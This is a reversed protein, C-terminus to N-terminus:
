NLKSLQLIKQEELLMRELNSLINRLMIWQLKIHNKLIKIMLLLRRLM